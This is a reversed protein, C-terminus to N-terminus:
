NESSIDKTLVRQTPYPMEIEEQAFRELLKLNLAGEVDVYDNYKESEVEYIVEYILTSDGMSKLHARTFKAVPFDAFIKEIITPVQKLKELPTEYAVGLTFSIRRTKMKKYNSIRSSTLDKNPIILEEGQLSQLRTSKIGIEKVTGKDQGVIIFDGIEFPKDFYISFSSLLDGLVNQVALAVAVGGIGLGAMLSTVNIGLNSLLLLLGVIWVIIIIVTKLLNIPAKNKEKEVLQRASFDITLQILSIVQFLTMIILTTSLIQDVKESIKLFQAAVSLAAIVYFYPKVAQMLKVLLDDTKTETKEILRKLKGLVFTKIIKFIAVTGIFIAGAQIWTQLSNGLFNNMM